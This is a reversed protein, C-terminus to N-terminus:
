KEVGLGNSNEKNDFVEVLKRRKIKKVVTVLIFIWFIVFVSVGIISLGLRINDKQVYKEYEQYTFGGNIEDRADDFTYYRTEDYKNYWLYMEYEEESIGLENAKKKIYEDFELNEKRADEMANVFQSPFRFVDAYCVDINAFLSLLICFVIFLNKFKM